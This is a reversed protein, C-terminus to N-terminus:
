DKLVKSFVRYAQYGAGALALVLCVGMLWPTTGFKKDLYLGLFFFGMVVLPLATIVVMARALRRGTRLEEDDGPM